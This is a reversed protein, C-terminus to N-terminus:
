PAKYEEAEPYCTAPIGQSNLKTFLEFSEEFSLDEYLKDETKVIFKRM